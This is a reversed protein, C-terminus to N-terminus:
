KDHFLPLMPDAAPTDKNDRDEPLPTTLLTTSTAASKGKAKPSVM